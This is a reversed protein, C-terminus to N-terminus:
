LVAPFLLGLFLAEIGGSGGWWTVISCFVIYLSVVFYM